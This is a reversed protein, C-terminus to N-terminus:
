LAKQILAAGDSIWLTQGVHHPRGQHVPDSGLTGDLLRGDNVSLGPTAGGAEDREDKKARGRRSDGPCVIIMPAAIIATDM